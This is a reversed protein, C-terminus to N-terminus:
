KRRYFNLYSIIYLKITPFNKTKISLKKNTKDRSFVVNKNKFIKSFKHLFKRERGGLRKSVGKRWFSMHSECYRKTETKNTKITKLYIEARKQSWITLITAGSSLIKQLELDKNVDYVKWTIKEKGRKRSHM